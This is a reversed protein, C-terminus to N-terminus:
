PSRSRRGSVASVEDLFSEMATLAQDFALTGPILLHNDGELAVFRAGPIAAALCRGTGFPVMRDGRCHLILVPVRLRAAEARIDLRAVFEFYAESNEPPLSLRWLEDHDHALEPWAAPMLERRSTAATPHTM